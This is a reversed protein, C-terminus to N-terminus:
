KSLKSMKLSTNVGFIDDNSAYKGCLECGNMASLPLGGRGGLCDLPKFHLCVRAANALEHLYHDCLPMSEFPLPPATASSHGSVAARLTKVISRSMATDPLARALKTPSNNKGNLGLPNAGSEILVKVSVHRQADIAAHLSTWGDSTARADIDIAAPALVKILASDDALAAIHLATYGNIMFIVRSEHVATARSKDSLGKFTVVGLSAYDDNDFKVSPDAGEAILATADKLADDDGSMAVKWLRAHINSSLLSTGRASLQATTLRLDTKKAAPASSTTGM